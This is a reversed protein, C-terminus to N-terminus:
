PGNGRGIGQHGGLDAGDGGIRPRAPDAQREAIAAGSRKLGREPIQERQWSPKEGGRIDSRQRGDCNVRRINRRDILGPIVTEQAVALNIDEEWAGAGRAAFKDHVAVKNEARCVRGDSM